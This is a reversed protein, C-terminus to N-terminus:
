IQSQHASARMVLDSHRKGAVMVSDREVREVVFGSKKYAAIARHNYDLVRLFIDQLRVRQFAFTLVLQTAETGLGRGWVSPDYLGIAYWASRATLDLRNLRATGVLRGEYEISWGYPESVLQDYWRGVEEVTLPPMASADGGVM